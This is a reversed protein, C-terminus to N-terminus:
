YKCESVFANPVPVDILVFSWNTYSNGVRDKAKHWKEYEIPHLKKDIESLKLDVYAKSTKVIREAISAINRLQMQRDAGKEYGNRGIRRQAACLASTSALMARLQVGEHVIHIKNPDDCGVGSLISIMLERKKETPNRSYDVIGQQYGLVYVSSVVIPIRLVKLIKAFINIM